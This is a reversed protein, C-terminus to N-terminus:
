SWLESEPLTTERKIKPVNKDDEHQIIWQQQQPQPKEDDGKCALESTPSKKEGKRFWKKTRMINLKQECDGECTFDTGPFTIYVQKPGLRKTM